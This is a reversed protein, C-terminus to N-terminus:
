FHHIHSHKLTQSISDSPSFLLNYAYIRDGMLCIGQESRATVAVVHLFKGLAVTERQGELLAEELVQNEQTEYVKLGVQCAQKLAIWVTVSAPETHQLISGALILPLHHLLDNSKNRDDM